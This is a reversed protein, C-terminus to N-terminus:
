LDVTSEITCSPGQDDADYIRFRVGLQEEVIPRVKNEFCKVCCDLTAVERHDGEPYVSGIKAEITVEDNEYGFQSKIEEKCIDCTLTAKYRITTERQRQYTKM